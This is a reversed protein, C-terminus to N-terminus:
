GPRLVTRELDWQRHRGSEGSRRGNGGDIATVHCPSLIAPVADRRGAIKAPKQSKEATGGRRGAIAAEGLGHGCHILPLM